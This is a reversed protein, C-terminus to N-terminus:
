AKSAYDVLKQVTKESLLRSAIDRRNEPKDLEAQMQPDQYQGKLIQLRIELEEPTVQINELKSIESLVLGAKVRAEADPRQRQRHQEEKIGEQDLHEQWTLGRYTLNRREDEEMFKIQDEILTEPIEVQSKDAIKSILQNEYNREAQSQKESKIQKKIDAKLDAVTKFPGVTAAFDDDVKPEQL